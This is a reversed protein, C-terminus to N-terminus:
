FLLAFISNNCVYKLGYDFMAVMQEDLLKFRM